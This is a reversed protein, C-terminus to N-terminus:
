QRYRHSVNSPDPGTVVPKAPLSRDEYSAAILQAQQVVAVAEWEDHPLIKPIRMVGGRRKNGREDRLNALEKKLSATVRLRRMHDTLNGTSCNRIATSLFCEWGM